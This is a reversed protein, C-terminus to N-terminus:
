KNFNRGLLGFSQIMKEETSAVTGILRDGVKQVDYEWGSFLQGKKEAVIPFVELNLDQFSVILQLGKQFSRTSELPSRVVVGCNKRDCVYLGCSSMSFSFYKGDIAVLAFTQNQTTSSFQYRLSCNISPLSATAFTQKDSLISIDTQFPEVALQVPIPLQDYPVFPQTNVNAILLSSVTKGSPGPNYFSDLVKGRQYIGSGSNYWGMGAGAALLNVNKSKAWGDQMTVGNLIPPTNVWWTSYVFDQIGMQTLSNMPNKFLIDFCIGM